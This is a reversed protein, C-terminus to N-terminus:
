YQNMPMLISENAYVKEQFEKIENLSVNNRANQPYCLEQLAQAINKNDEIM